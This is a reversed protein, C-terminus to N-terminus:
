LMQRNVDYNRTQLTSLLKSHLKFIGALEHYKCVCENTETRNGRVYGTVGMRIM